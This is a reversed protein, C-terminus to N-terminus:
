TETKKMNIVQIRPGNKAIGDKRKHRNQYTQARQRNWQDTYRSKHWVGATNIVTARYHLNFDPITM